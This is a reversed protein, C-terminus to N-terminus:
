LVHESAKKQPQRVEKSRSCIVYDWKFILTNFLVLALRVKKTPFGNLSKKKPFVTREKIIFFKAQPASQNNSVRELHFRPLLSM